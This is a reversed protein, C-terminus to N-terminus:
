RYLPIQAQGFAALSWGSFTKTLDIAVLPDVTGTGFQIHEHPLGLDGLTFPNPQVKGTPISVGIRDGLLLGGTLRTSHHLFLHIDGLGVLDENRHHISPYDLTIPNGLLDTYTTRTGVIRVPVIAQVAFHPIVGYEGLLRVDTLWVSTHHQQPPEARVQCIPGI